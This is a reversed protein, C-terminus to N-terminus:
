LQGGEQLHVGDATVRDTRESGGVVRIWSDVKLERGSLEVLFGGYMGPVPFWCAPRVLETLVEVEPLRLGQGTALDTGDKEPARHRILRHLNRRLAGLEDYPLPHRIEPRLLVALDRHGRRDALDTARSGDSTRLTRWAGLALLRQVVDAPAGHWAAQHLPTYGSPGGLRTCNVWHANVKARVEDLVRFVTAWDGDRAADALRHRETVYHDKLSDPRTTGDWHAVDDEFM